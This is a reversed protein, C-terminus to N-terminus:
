KGGGFGAVYEDYADETARGLDVCAERDRGTEAWAIRLEDYHKDHWADFSLPSGIVTTVWEKKPAQKDSRLVEIDPLPCSQPVRWLIVTSPGGRREQESSHPVVFGTKECSMVAAGFTSDSKLHSCGGCTKRKNTM